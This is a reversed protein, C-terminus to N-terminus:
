KIIGIRIFLLWVKGEHGCDEGYDKKIDEDLENWMGTWQEALRKGDVLKTKHGGSEISIVRINWPSMERRLSDTFAELGCKSITYSAM